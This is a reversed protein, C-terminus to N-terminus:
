AIDSDNNAVCHHNGDLDNKLLASALESIVNQKLTTFSNTPANDVNLHQPRINGKNDNCHNDVDTENLVEIDEPRQIKSLRTQLETMLISAGISERRRMLITDDCVTANDLSLSPYADNERMQKSKLGKGSFVVTKQSEQNPESGNPIHINVDVPSGEDKLELGQISESSAMESFKVGGGGDSGNDGVDKDLREGQPFMSQGLTAHVHLIKELSMSFQQWLHRREGINSEDGHRDNKVTTSMGQEDMCGSSSSHLFAWLLVQSEYMFKQLEVINKRQNLTFTTTSGNWDDNWSDFRMVFSELYVQQESALSISNGVMNSLQHNVETRPMTQDLFLIAGFAMSLVHSLLSKNEKICSDLVALTCVSTEDLLDLIGDEMVHQLEDCDDDCDDDDDNDNRQQVKYCQFFANGVKLLNANQELLIRILFRRLTAHVGKFSHLISGGIDGQKAMISKHEIRDVSPSFPGLGLQISSLTRIAQLTHEMQEILQSHKKALSVLLVPNVSISDKAPTKNHHNHVDLNNKMTSSLPPAQITALIAMTQQRYYSGVDAAADAAAAVSPNTAQLYCRCRYPENIATM